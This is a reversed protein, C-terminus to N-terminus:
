VPSPHEKRKRQRPRNKSITVDKEPSPPPSASSTSPYAVRAEQFLQRLESIGSSCDLPKTPYYSLESMRPWSFPVPREEREKRFLPETRSRQLTTGPIRLLDGFSRLLNDPPMPSGDLNPPRLFRVDHGIHHKLVVNELCPGRHIYKSLRLSVKKTLM